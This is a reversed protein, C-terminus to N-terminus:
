DANGEKPWRALYDHRAQVLPMFADKFDSVLPVEGNALNANSLLRDMHACFQMGLRGIEALAKIRESDDPQLEAEVYCDATPPCRNASPAVGRHKGRCGFLECKCPM